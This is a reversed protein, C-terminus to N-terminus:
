DMEDCCQALHNGGYHKEVHQSEGYVEKRDPVMRVDKGLGM